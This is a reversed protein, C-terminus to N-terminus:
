LRALRALPPCNIEGRLIQEVPSASIGAARAIREITEARGTAPAM